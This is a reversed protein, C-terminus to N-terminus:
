NVTRSDFRVLQSWVATALPCDRFVHLSTEVINACNSCYPEGLPLRNLRHRTLLKSWLSDKNVQLSWGLKMLCAKNVTELDRLGLGGHERPLM